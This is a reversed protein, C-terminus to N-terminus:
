YHNTVDKMEELLLRDIDDWGSSSNTPTRHTRDKSILDVTSMPELHTLTHRVRPAPLLLNPSPATGFRELIETGYARSFSSSKLAPSCAISTSSAPLPATAFSSGINEPNTFVDKGPGPSSDDSIEIIEQPKPTQLSHVGKKEVGLFPGDVAGDGGQSADRGASAAPITASGLGLMLSSLPPLDDLSDDDFDTSVSKPQGNSKRGEKRSGSQKSTGKAGNQGRSSAPSELPLTPFKSQSSGNEKRTVTLKPPKRAPQKGKGTDKQNGRKKISAPLKLQNLNGAKHNSIARNRPKRPKRPKEM